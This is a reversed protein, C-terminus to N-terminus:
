RMAGLPGRFDVGRHGRRWITDLSSGKWLAKSLPPRDYPPDPEDGVLTISASPDVERIGCAAAEAAMGGGVILHEAKPM